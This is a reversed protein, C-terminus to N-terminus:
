PLEPSSSIDVIDRATVRHVINNTHEFVENKNTLILLGYKSHCVKLVDCMVFSLKKNSVIHLKHKMDILAM